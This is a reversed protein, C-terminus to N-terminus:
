EGFSVEEFQGWVKNGATDCKVRTPRIWDHQAGPAPDEILEWDEGRLGFRESASQEALEISEYWEDYDCPGDELKTYLFLHAGGDSTYTMLRRINDTPRLVVAVKRM